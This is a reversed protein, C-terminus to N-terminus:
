RTRALRRTMEVIEWAEWDLYAGLEARANPLHLAVFTPDNPHKPIATSSFDNSFM